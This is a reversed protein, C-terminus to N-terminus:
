IRGFKFAQLDFDEVRTDISGLDHKDGCFQIECYECIGMKEFWKAQVWDFDYEVETIKKLSKLM